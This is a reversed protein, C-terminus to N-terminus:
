NICQVRECLAIIWKKKFKDKALSLFYQLAKRNSTNLRDGYLEKFKVEQVLNAQLFSVRNSYNDSAGELVSHKSKSSVSNNLSCYRVTAIDTFSYEWFRIRDFCDLLSM